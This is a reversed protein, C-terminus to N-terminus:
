SFIWQELETRTDFARMDLNLQTTAAKLNVAYLKGFANGTVLFAIKKIGNQKARPLFTKQFWEFGEKPVAKGNVMDSILVPSKTEKIQQLTHELVKKYKDTDSFGKWTVEVAKLAKNYSVEANIETLTKM